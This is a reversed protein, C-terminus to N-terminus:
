LDDSVFLFVVYFWTQDGEIVGALFLAPINEFFLYHLLLHSLFIYALSFSALSLTFLCLCLCLCLCVCVCVCM